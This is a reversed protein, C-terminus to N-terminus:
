FRMTPAALRRPWNGDWTREDQIGTNMGQGGVPSHIHSADGALFVSGARYRRAQLDHVRFPTMWDSSQAHVRIGAHDLADQFDKLTLDRQLEEDQRAHVAVIVRVFNNPLRAMFVVDGRHLHLSLEDGPADPGDLKLDGLFFSLGVGGGEFPIDFFRRVSSRAGDCGIVM